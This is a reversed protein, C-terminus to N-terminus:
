LADQLASSTTYFLPDGGTIEWAADVGVDNLLPVVPTLAEAAGAGFRGGSLHLLRRGRVREALKLIIDIAGPPAVQRYDDIRAQPSM